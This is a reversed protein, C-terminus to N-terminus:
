PSGGKNPPWRMVAVFFRLWPLAALPPYIPLGTDTGTLNLAPPPPLRSGAWPMFTSGPLVAM